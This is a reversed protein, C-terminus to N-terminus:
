ELLLEMQGVKEDEINEVSPLRRQEVKQEYSLKQFIPV